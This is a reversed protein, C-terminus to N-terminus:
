GSKSAFCRLVRQLKKADVDLGTYTQDSGGIAVRVATITQSALRTLTAADPKMQLPWLTRGESYTPTVEGTIGVEVVDGDALLFKVTTGGDVISRSLSYIGARFLLDVKGDAFTAKWGTNWSGNQFYMSAVDATIQHSFGDEKFKINACPEGAAAVGSAMSLALLLQQMMVM